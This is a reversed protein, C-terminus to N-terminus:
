HKALPGAGGVCLVFAREHYVVGGGAPWREPDAQGTTSSSGVALRTGRDLKEREQVKM